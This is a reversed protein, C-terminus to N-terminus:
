DRLWTTIFHKRAEWCRNEDQKAEWTNEISKKKKGEEKWDKLKGGRKGRQKTFAEVKRKGKNRVKKRKM